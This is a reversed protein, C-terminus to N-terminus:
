KIQNIPIYHEYKDSESNGRSVIGIVVLKGNRAAFVPGGSNGHDAGTSAMICNANDIGDRSVTSKNYIPEILTGRGDGVGLGQPFGLIQLEEGTHLSVSAEYDAILDSPMDVDAVAWDQGWMLEHGGEEVPWVAFRYKYGDEYKYIYDYNRNIRFDSSKLTFKLESGSYAYIETFLEYKRPYTTALVNFIETTDSSFFLWTEICHRATVFKGNNLMFGSCSVCAEDIRKTEGTEKDHYYAYIEM